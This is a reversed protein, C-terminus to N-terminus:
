VMINQYVIVSSIFDFLFHFQIGIRGLDVGFNALLSALFWTWRIDLFLLSGASCKSLALDKFTDCDEGDRPMYRIM